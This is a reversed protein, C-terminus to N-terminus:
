KWGRAVPCAKLSTVNKFVRPLYNCWHGRDSDYSGCDNCKFQELQIPLPPKTLEPELEEMVTDNQLSGSETDTEFMGRFFPNKRLAEYFNM